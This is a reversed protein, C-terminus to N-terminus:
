TDNHLDAVKLQLPILELSNEGLFKTQIKLANVLVIRANKTDDM